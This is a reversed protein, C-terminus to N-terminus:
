RKLRESQAFHAEYQRVLAVIGSVQFRFFVKNHEKQEQTYGSARVYLEDKKTVLIEPYKHDFQQATLCIDIGRQPDYNWAHWEYKPHKLGKRTTIKEYWGAVEELEPIVIHSARTAHQCKGKPFRLGTVLKTSNRIAVLTTYYPLTSPDIFL